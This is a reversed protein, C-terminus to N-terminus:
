KKKIWLNQIQEILKKAVLRKHINGLHEIEIKGNERYCIFYNGYPKSFSSSSNGVIIDLNKRSMKDLTNGEINELELSFGVVIKAQNGVHEIIDQTRELEITLNKIKEKKIKGKVKKAPKFDSVAASGIFIDTPLLKKVENLMDEATEIKQTNFIKEGGFTEGGTILHTEAGEIASEWSIVYGIFGSSPNSIFRIEDIYERTPGATIVVKRNKLKKESLAYECYFLIKDLTPFKGEGKEGCALDGEDTSVVIHGIKKIKQINEETFPNKLMAWNMSPVFVIPCTSSILITSIMTDCIGNAFKGIINATAPAVVILDSSHPLTIHEMGEFDVLVKEGTLSSFTEEGVFRTAMKSMVVRVKAGSKQFLRLLEISKYAAIGGTVCLTINKGYLRSGKLLEEFNM